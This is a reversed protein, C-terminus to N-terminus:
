SSRNFLTTLSLKSFASCVKIPVMAYPGPNAISDENLSKAAKWAINKVGSVGIQEYNQGPNAYYYIKYVAKKGTNMVRCDAMQLRTLDVKKKKCGSEGYLVELDYIVGAVVQSQVKLVQLKTTCSM